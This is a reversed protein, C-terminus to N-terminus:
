VSFYPGGGPYSGALGPRRAPWLPRPVETPMVAVLDAPSPDPGGHDRALTSNSEPSTSTRGVEGLSAGAVSAQRRQNPPGRNTAVTWAWRGPSRSSSASWAKAAPM